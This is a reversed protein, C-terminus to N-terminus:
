LQSRLEKLVERAAEKTIPEDPDIIDQQYEIALTSTAAEIKAPLNPNVPAFGLGTEGSPDIVNAVMREIEARTYLGKKMRDKISPLKMLFGKARSALKHDDLNNLDFSGIAMNALLGVPTDKARALAIVDAPSLDSSPQLRSTIHSITLPYKGEDGQLFDSYAGYVAQKEFDSIAGYWVSMIAPSPMSHRQYEAVVKLFEVIDHKTM